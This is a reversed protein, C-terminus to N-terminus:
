SNIPCSEEHSDHCYVVDICVFNLSVGDDLSRLHVVYHTSNTPISWLKKRHAHLPMSDGYKASTSWWRNLFGIMRAPYIAFCLLM